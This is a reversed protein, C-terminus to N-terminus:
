RVQLPRSRKPDYMRGYPADPGWGGGGRWRPGRQAVVNEVLMASVVLAMAVIATVKMDDEKLEFSRSFGQVLRALSLMSGHAIVGLIDQKLSPMDVRNRM